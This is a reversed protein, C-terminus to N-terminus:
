REGEQGIGRKRSGKERRGGGREGNSGTRNEVEMGGRGRKGGRGGEREWVRESGDGEEKGEERV